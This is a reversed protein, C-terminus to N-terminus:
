LSSSRVSSNSLSESRLPPPWDQVPFWFFLLLMFGSPELVGGLMLPGMLPERDHIVEGDEKGGRKQQQEEAIQDLLSVMSPSFCDTEAMCDM